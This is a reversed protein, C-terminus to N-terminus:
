KASARERARLIGPKTSTSYYRNDMKKLLKYNDKNIITQKYINSIRNFNYEM